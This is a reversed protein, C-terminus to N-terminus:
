HSNANYGKMLHEWCEGSKMEEENWQGYALDYAWQERDYQVPDSLLEATLETNAIPYAISGKDAAFISYGELVALASSTSNFAVVARAGALDEEFTRASSPIGYDFSKALPHPRFVVTLGLATIKQVTDQCWAPHDTHQVSADWPVQGCVLIYDGAGKLSYPKIEVGLKDWRDSPQGTKGFYGLGNLGNMAVGYYEDRRIFGREVVVFPKKQRFHHEYIIAGRAHSSPVQRKGVGFVIAIDSHRYGGELPLLNAGPIGQRLAKLYKVHDEPERPLYVNVTTM